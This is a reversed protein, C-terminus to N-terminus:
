SRLEVIKDIKVSKLGTKISEDLIGRVTVEPIKTVHMFAKKGFSQLNPGLILHQIKADILALDEIQVLSEPLSLKQVNVGGFAHKHIVKIGEELEISNVKHAQECYFAGDPLEDVTGPVTIEKLGKCECFAYKGVSKLGQPLIVRKLSRCSFFAEPGVSQLNDPLNIDTLAKCNYFAGAGIHCLSEPLKVSQLTTFDEFAYDGITTIGEPLEIAEADSACKWQTAGTSPSAVEFRGDTIQWVFPGEKVLSELQKQTLIEIGLAKTQDIKKQDAKKGIVLIDTNANISSVFTAGFRHLYRSFEKKEWPCQYGYFDKTTLQGTLAIKKGCIGPGEEKHDEAFGSGATNSLDTEIVNDWSDEEWFADLDKESADTENITKYKTVLRHDSYQVQARMGTSGSFGGINGLFSCMPVQSAIEEFLEIEDLGGFYGYPGAADIQLYGQGRVAEVDELDWERDKSSEDSRDYHRVIKLADSLDEESGQIEIHTNIDASM